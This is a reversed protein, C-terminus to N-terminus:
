AISQLYKEAEVLDQPTDIGISQYKSEVCEFSYNADIFRLQELFENKELISSPLSNYKELVKRSYGYIGIHRFYDCNALWKSKDAEERQFPLAQRSFYIIKGLNNRLVKVVNPNELDKADTIKSIATALECKTQSYKYMLSSVLETPIFPEDGQVNVIFDADIEPLAEVIRETGNNCTPSTMIAKAHITKAFDMIEPSDTLIYVNDKSPEAAQCKNYVRELVTMGGRKALPKGAFRTSSMRAPIAIAFSLAFTYVAEAEDIKEWFNKAEELSLNVPEYVFLFYTLIGAFLMLLIGMFRKIRRNLNAPVGWNRAWSEPYAEDYSESSRFLLIIGLLTPFGILGLQIAIKTIATYNM